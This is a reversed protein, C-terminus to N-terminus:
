SDAASHSERYEHWYQWGDVQFVPLTQQEGVYLSEHYCHVVVNDGGKIGAYDQCVMLAPSVHIPFLHM